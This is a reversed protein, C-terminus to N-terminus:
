DPAQTDEPSVNVKLARRAAYRWLRQTQVRLVAGSHRHVRIYTIVIDQFREIVQCCKLGLYRLRPGFPRKCYRSVEQRSPRLTNVPALDDRSESKVVRIVQSLYRKIVQQHRPWRSDSRPWTMPLYRRIVQGCLTENVSVVKQWGQGRPM